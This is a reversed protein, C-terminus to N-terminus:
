AIRLFLTACYRSPIGANGMCRWTGAPSSGGIHMATNDSYTNTSASGAYRLGSGAYTVGASLVGATPSGLWAYTGVAGASAGATASLVSAAPLGTLGSGDGAFATATVTGNVDLATSPSTKGIGVNGSSDITARVANDTGFHLVQPYTTGVLMSNSVTGTYSSGDGRGGATQVYSVVGNVGTGDVALQLAAGGPEGSANSRDGSAKIIAYGYSNIQLYNTASTGTATADIIFSGTTLKASVQNDTSNNYLGLDGNVEGTIRGFVSGDRRFQIESEGTDASDLILFADSDGTGNSKVRIISDSNDADPAQIDLQFEPSTTGIGILGSSDIIARDTFTDTAGNYHGLRMAQGDPVAFDNGGQSIFAPKNGDGYATVSVQGGLVWIRNTRAGSDGSAISIALIPQGGHWIWGAGEMEYDTGAGDGQAEAEGVTFDDIEQVFTETITYVFVKLTNGTDINGL